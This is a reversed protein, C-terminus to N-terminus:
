LDSVEADGTCAQHTAFCELEEWNLVAKVFSGLLLLVEMPVRPM